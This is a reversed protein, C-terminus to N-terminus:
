SDIRKNQKVSSIKNEANQLKNNNSVLLTLILRRQQNVVWSQNRKEQSVTTFVIEEM